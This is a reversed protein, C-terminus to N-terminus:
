RYLVDSVPLRGLDTQKQLLHVTHVFTKLSGRFVPIPCSLDPKTLLLSSNM